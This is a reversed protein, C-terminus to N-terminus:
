RAAARRARRDRHRHLWRLAPADTWRCTQCRSRRRRRGPLRLPCQAGGPERGVDLRRDVPQHLLCGVVGDLVCLGSRIETVTLRPSAATSTVTASSPFPVRDPYPRAFSRVSRCAPAPPATRRFDPSRSRERVRYPPALGSSASESASPRWSRPVGLRDALRRGDLRDAPGRDTRARPRVGRGRGQQGHQAESTDRGPPDRGHSHQDRADRRDGSQHPCAAVLRLVEIERPTLGGPPGEPEAALRAGLTPNIYTEGQAAARIADVLEAGAAHKVVFAKAGLRFAERAFAPDDQMTLVVVVTEPSGEMISPISTLSPEGPMNLDLVLVAPKLGSTRRRATNADGAEAVVEM